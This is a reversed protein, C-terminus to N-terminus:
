VPPFRIQRVRGLWSRGFCFPCLCHTACQDDPAREAPQEGSQQQTLGPPVHRHELAARAVEGAAARADARMDLLELDHAPSGIEGVTALHGGFDKASRLGAAYAAYSAVIAEFQFHPVERQIGGVIRLAGQAGLNYLAASTGVLSFALDGSPM